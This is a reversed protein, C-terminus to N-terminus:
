WGFNDRGNKPVHMKRQTACLFESRIVLLIWLVDKTAGDDNEVMLVWSEGGFRGAEVCWLLVGRKKSLLGRVELGTFSYLVDFSGVFGRAGAGFTELEEEEDFSWAPNM